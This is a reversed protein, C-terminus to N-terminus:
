SIKPLEPLMETMKDAIQSIEAHLQHIEQWNINETERKAEITALLERSRNLLIYFEPNIGNSHTM